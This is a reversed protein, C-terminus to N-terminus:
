ARNNWGPSSASRSVRWPNVSTESRAPPVTWTTSADAGAQTTGIRARPEPTTRRMEAVALTFGGVAAVVAGAAVIDSPRHWGVLMTAVATLVVAPVGAALLPGTWRPVLVILAVVATLAVTVHGSPLTNEGAPSPLLSKLLQVIAQSGLVIGAAAAARGRFGRRWALVVVVLMAVTVLPAAVDLAVLVPDRVPEGVVMAAHLVHNDAHRGTRDLVALVYTVAVTASGVVALLLGLVMRPLRRRDSREGAGPRPPRAIPVTPQTPRVDVM